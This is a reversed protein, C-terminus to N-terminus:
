KYFAASLMMNDNNLFDKPSVGIFEKFDKTFHAQDHYEHEHAIETLSVEKKNLIAHLASQIRIVKGLQKPSLGIQETFKRELQRRKSPNEKLLKGIPTSGKTLVLTDITNKVISDITKPEKLKNLLFAEIIHIRNQTDSAQMMRQILNESTERGFLDEIPIEKDVLTHLSHNIFNAFGHAYFCIAFSDVHGVPEIYYSKTRQGMVMGCPHLLFENDSVYRKIPDALNFTMEINGDPIIKQKKNNPDFPVELTWYFRVLTELEPRPQFTQYNM